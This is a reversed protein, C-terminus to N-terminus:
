WYCLMEARINQVRRYNIRKFHLWRLTGLVVVFDGGGSIYVTPSWTYNYTNEFASM